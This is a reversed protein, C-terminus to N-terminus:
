YCHESPIRHCQLWVKAMEVLDYINVLCDPEGDPGSVDTAPHHLCVKEGSGEVYLWAVEETDLTYNYLKVDDITGFYPYDDKIGTGGFRLTPGFGGFHIKFQIHISGNVYM